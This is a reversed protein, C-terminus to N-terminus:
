REDKRDAKNDASAQLTTKANAAAICLAGLTATTTTAKEAAAAATHPAGNTGRM